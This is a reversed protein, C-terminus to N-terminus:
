RIKEAIASEILRLYEKRYNEISHNQALYRYAYEGKKALATTDISLYSDLATALAKTDGPPVVLGGAGIILPKMAPIDSAIVPLAGSMGELLALGLGESFSPMTWIDFARVFRKAGPVFGPLLVRGELGLASIATCLREKEKGEGIIALYTDPHRTAIQAFAKILCIHGKVPVLRGAAGIIRGHVPLGLQQRAEAKSFQKQRAVDLDFANTIAITNAESFGCRREILYDRVAPSVGVFRWHNDIYWKAFLKRQWSNYEGFGHSIGICVPIKLLKNLQMLLSVPKYRNCIAIDFRNKRLFDLLLLRLGIRLGRLAKEPLKFYVAHEARTQEAGPAPCGQLFATTVEYRERPFALIIQEALDSYDHSNEHYDPQLQLVKLRREAPKIDENKLPATM